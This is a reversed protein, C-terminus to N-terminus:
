DLMGTGPESPPRQYQTQTRMEVYWGMPPRASLYVDSRGGAKCLVVIFQRDPDYEQLLRRLEENQPELEGESYYGFPNGQDETQETLNVVIFGYGIEEFAVTAALWLIARNEEIWNFDQERECSVQDPSNLREPTM